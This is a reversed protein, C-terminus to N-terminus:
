HKECQYDAIGALPQVLLPKDGGGTVSTGRNHSAFQGDHRVIFNSNPINPRDSVVIVTNGSIVVRPLELDIAEQTGLQGLNAEYTSTDVTYTSYTWPRYYVNEGKRNTTRVEENEMQGLTYIEEINLGNRNLEVLRGYMRPDPNGHKKDMGNPIVAVTPNLVRLLASSNSCQSGHHSAKFACTHGRHTVGSEPLHMSLPLEVNDYSSCGTGWADHNGTSAGSLDGATFYTFSNYSLIFALSFDNDNRKNGTKRYHVYNSDHRGNIVARNEAVLTMVINLDRDLTITAGTDPQFVHNGLISEMANALLKDAHQSDTKERGLIDKVKQVENFLQTKISDDAFREILPLYFNAYLSNEQSGSPGFTQPYTPEFLAPMFVRDVSLGADVMGKFGGFHDDHKHSLIFNDIRQVGQAILYDHVDQGYDSRGADIVTANKVTGILVNTAPIELTNGTEFHHDNTSLRLLVQTANIGQSKSDEHIPDVSFLTNVHDTLKKYYVDGFHNKLWAQTQDFPLDKYTKTHDTDFTEAVLEDLRNTMIVFDNDPLMRRLVEYSITNWVNNVDRIIIVGADANDVAIQHIELSQGLAPPSPLLQCLLVVIGFGCIRASHLRQSMNKKAISFPSNM